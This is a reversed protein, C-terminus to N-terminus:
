YQRKVVDNVIQFTMPRFLIYYTQVFISLFVTGCLLLCARCSTDTITPLAAFSELSSSQTHNLRVAMETKDLGYVCAVLLCMMSLWAVDIM